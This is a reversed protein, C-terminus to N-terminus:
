PLEWGNHYQAMLHANAAADTFNGKEMDWYLRNGTKYAVNGMHSVLAADYGVKIPANLKTSDRSKVAEIFNATHLDLGSGQNQQLPIREM